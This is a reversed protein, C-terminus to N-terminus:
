VGRSFKISFHGERDYDRLSCIKPTQTTTSSRWHRSATPRIQRCTQMHGASINGKAAALGALIGFGYGQNQEVRVVRIEPHIKLNAQFIQASRDTSGNDVLIFEVDKRTVATSIRGFLLPINKEENYCPIVISLLM